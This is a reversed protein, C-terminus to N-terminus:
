DKGVGDEVEVRLEKVSKPWPMWHTNSEYSDEGTCEDVDFEWYLPPFDKPKNILYQDLRRDKLRCIECFDNDEHCVFVDINMDPLKKSLEIWGSYRKNKPEEPLYSWHTVEEITVSYTENPVMVSWQGDEYAGVNIGIARNTSFILVVDGEEPLVEKVSTWFVYGIAVM